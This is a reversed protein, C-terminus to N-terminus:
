KLTNENGSLLGFKFNIPSTRMFLRFAPLTPAYYNKRRKEYRVNGFIQLIFNPFKLCALQMRADIYLRLAPFGM